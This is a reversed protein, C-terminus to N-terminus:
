LVINFYFLVYVGDTVVINKNLQKLHQCSCAGANKLKQLYQGSLPRILGFITALM